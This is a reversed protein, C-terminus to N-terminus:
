HDGRTDDSTTQAANGRDDSTPDNRAMANQRFGYRNYHCGGRGYPAPAYRRDGALV